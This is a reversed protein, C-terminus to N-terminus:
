PRDLTEPPDSAGVVRQYIMRLAANQRTIDFHERVRARARAGITGDEQLLRVLVDVYADVDREEVLYGTVGHEVAEPIGAHYTTVVPLGSAMAELIVTPLGEEEGRPGRVSHHVFVDSASMLRRVEATDVNGLFKVRAALGLSAVQREIRPRTPGDGAFVLDVNGLNRAVVHFADVTYAHGKKEVFNAVQLLQIRAGRGAKHAVSERQPSVFKDLPVGIYHQFVHEPPAGLELLRGQALRSVAIAYSQSLLNRIQHVYMPKTLWYSTDNGHFTTVLPIGLARAVPLVRIGSPGFHAHILAPSWPLLEAAVARASRRSLPIVGGLLKHYIWSLVRSHIGGPTRHIRDHPFRDLNHLRDALVVPAFGEVGKMQRYVFTASNSLYARSFVVFHIPSDDSLASPCRM